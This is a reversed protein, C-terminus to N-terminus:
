TLRLAAELAALATAQLPDNGCLASGLAAQGAADRVLVLVAREGDIQDDSADGLKLTPDIAALTAQAVARSPSAAEGRGTQMGAVAPVSVEAKALGDAVEIVVRISGAVIDDGASEELAHAAAGIAECLAAAIAEEHPDLPSDRRGSVFLSRSRRGSTSQSVATFGTVTVPGVESEPRDLLDRLASFLTFAETADLASLDPARLYLQPGFGNAVHVCACLDLSLVSRLADLGAYVVRQVLLGTETPV